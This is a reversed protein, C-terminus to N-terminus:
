ELFMFLIFFLKIMVLANKLKVEFKRLSCAEKIYTRLSNFLKVRTM